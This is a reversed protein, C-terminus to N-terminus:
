LHVSRLSRLVRDRVAPSPHSLCASMSTSGAGSGHAITATITLTGGNQNCFGDASGVEIKARRGDILAPRGRTHDLVDYGKPAPFGNSFWGLVVGGTRLHTEPLGRCDTDDGSRTRRFGTTRSRPM